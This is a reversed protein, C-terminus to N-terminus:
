RSRACAPLAAACGDSGDRGDRPHRRASAARTPGGATRGGVLAESAAGVQGQLARRGRRQLLDVRRRLLAGLRIRRLADVTRRRPAMDFSSSTTITRRGGGRSNRAPARVTSRCRCRCRRHNRRDSPPPLRRDLPPYQVAPGAASQEGAANIRQAIITRATAAMRCRKRRKDEGDQQEGGRRGQGPLMPAAIAAAHPKRREGLDRRGIDAIEDAGPFKAGAIELATRRRHHRPRFELRRRQQDLVAQDETRREVLHDREIGAAARLFPSVIRLDAGLLAGGIAIVAAADGIPDVVLRGFAAQRARIKM